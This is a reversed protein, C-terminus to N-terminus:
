YLLKERSSNDSVLAYMSMGRNWQVRLGALNDNEAERVNFTKFSRDLASKMEVNVDETGDLAKTFSKYLETEETGLFGLRDLKPITFALGGSNPLASATSLSFITEAAFFPPTIDDETDSLRLNRSGTAYDAFLVDIYERPFFTVITDRNEGRNRWYVIRHQQGEMAVVSGITGTLMGLPRYPRDIAHALMDVVAQIDVISEETVSPAAFREERLVDVTTPCFTCFVCSVSTGKQVSVCASTSETQIVSEKILLEKQLHSVLGSPYTTVSRNTQSELISSREGNDAYKLHKSALAAYVGILSRIRKSAKKDTSNDPNSLADVIDNLGGNIDNIWGDKTPKTFVVKLLQTEAVASAPVKGVILKGVIGDHGGQMLLVENQKGSDVSNVLEAIKGHKLVSLVTAAHEFVKQLIIRAKKAAETGRPTVAWPNDDGILYESIFSLVSPMEDNTPFIRLLGLGVAGDVSSAIKRLTDNVKAMETTFFAMSVAKAYMCLSLVDFPSTENDQADHKESPKAKKLGAEREKVTETWLDKLWDFMRVNKFHEKWTLPLDNENQFSVAPLRRICEITKGVEENVDKVDQVYCLEGLGVHSVFRLLALDDAGVILHVEDVVLGSKIEVKNKSESISKLLRVNQVAAPRADSLGTGFIALKVSNNILSAPKLVRAAMSLAAPLQEVSTSNVIALTTKKSHLSCGISVGLERGNFM